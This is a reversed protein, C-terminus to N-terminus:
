AVPRSLSLARSLWAGRLLTLVLLALQHVALVLALRWAGPQSVDILGVLWAAALVTSAGWIAHAAWAFLSTAPRAVFVSLARILSTLGSGDQSVAHCFGLDRVIGLSAILLLGLLLVGAALQDSGREGLSDVFTSAASAALSLTFFLVLLQTLSIAGTVLVFAPFRRVGRGAAVAIPQHPPAHLSEIFAARPVLWLVSGVLLLLFTGTAMSGLQPALGLALDGFLLAGAEFLPSDGRPHRATEHFAVGAWWPLALVVGVGSQLLWLAVLARRRELCRRLDVARIM